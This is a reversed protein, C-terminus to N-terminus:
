TIKNSLEINTLKNYIKANDSDPDISALWKDYDYQTARKYINNNETIFLRNNFDVLVIDGNSLDVYHKSINVCEYKIYNEDKLNITVYNKENILFIMNYTKSDFSSITYPM